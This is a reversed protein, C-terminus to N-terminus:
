RIALLLLLSMAAVGVTARRVQDSRGEGTVAWTAFHECNRWVLNYRTGM